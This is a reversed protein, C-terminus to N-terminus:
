WNRHKSEDSVKSRINYASMRMNEAGTSHKKGLSYVTIYHDSIILNQLTIAHFANQLHLVYDNRRSDTRSETARHAEIELREFGSCPYTYTSLAATRRPLFMM